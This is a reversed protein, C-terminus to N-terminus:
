SHHWLFVHLAEVKLGFGVVTLQLDLLRWPSRFCWWEYWIWFGNEANLFFQPLIIPIITNAYPFKSSSSSVRTVSPFTLNKWFFFLFHFWNQEFNSFECHFGRIFFGHFLVEQLFYAMCLPIRMSGHWRISMPPSDWSVCNGGNSKSWLWTIVVAPM